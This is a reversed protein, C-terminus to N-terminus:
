YTIKLAHDEGVTGLWDDPSAPVLNIMWDLRPIAYDTCGSNYLVMEKQQKATFGAGGLRSFAANGYHKIPAHDTPADDIQHIATNGVHIYTKKGGAPDGNNTAATSAAGAATNNKNFIIRDM